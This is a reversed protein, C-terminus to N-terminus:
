CKPFTIPPPRTDSGGLGVSPRCTQAFAPSEGAPKKTAGGDRRSDHPTEGAWALIGESWGPSAPAVSKLSFLFQLKFDITLIIKQVERLVFGIPIHEYGRQRTDLANGHVHIRRGVLAEADQPFVTPINLISSGYDTRLQAASM